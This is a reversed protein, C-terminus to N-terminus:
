ARFPLKASMVELFSVEARIREVLFIEGKAIILDPDGADCVIAEAYRGNTQTLSTVGHLV